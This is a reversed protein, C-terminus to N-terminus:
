MACLGSRTAPLWSFTAIVYRAERPRYSLRIVHDCSSCAATHIIHQRLIFVSRWFFSIMEESRVLPPDTPPRLLHAGGLIQDVIHKKILGM